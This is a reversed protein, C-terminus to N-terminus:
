TYIEFPFGDKDENFIYRMRNMGPSNCIMEKLSGIM